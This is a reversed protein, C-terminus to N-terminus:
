TMSGGFLSGIGPSNSTVLKEYVGAVGVKPENVHGSKFTLSVEKFVCANKCVITIGNALIKKM